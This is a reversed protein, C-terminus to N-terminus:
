ATVTAPARENERLFAFTALAALALILIWIPRLGPLLASPIDTEVWGRKVVQERWFDQALNVAGYSLMLGLYAALAVRLRGPVRVRSLLLATLVLMTGDGGHHHGLHVAAIVTGDKEPYPEEGLFFDGPLQFGLEASLWPLSVILVVAAAVARVTDGPRRPAFSAGARRTAAITLALALVVGVIPIANRWRVDLDDQDVTLPVLACCAIAPAAVWRAAPPLAAVAILVFAIAVLAIPFNLLVAARSLGGELGEGSVHYLEAPDVRSYTVLVALAVLAWLAWGVLAEGQGSREV